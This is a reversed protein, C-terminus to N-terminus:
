QPKLITNKLIVHPFNQEPTPYAVILSYKQRYLKKFSSFSNIVDYPLLYKKKIKTNDQLKGNTVVLFKEKNDIEPFLKIIKEMKLISAKQMNCKIVILSSWGRYFSYDVGKNLFHNKFDFFISNNKNVNKM